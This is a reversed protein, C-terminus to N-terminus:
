SKKNNDTTHKKNKLFSLVGSKTPATLTHKRLHEFIVYEETLFDNLCKELKEAVDHMTHESDFKLVITKNYLSWLRNIPIAKDRFEPISLPLFLFAALEVIDVHRFERKSRLEINFEHVINPRFWSGINKSEKSLVIHYKLERHINQIRKKFSNNLWDVYVQITYPHQESPEIKKEIHLVFCSNM